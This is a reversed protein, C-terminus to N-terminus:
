NEQPDDELKGHRDKTPIRAQLWDEGLNGNQLAGNDWHNWLYGMNQAYNNKEKGGNPPQEQPLPGIPKQGVVQM